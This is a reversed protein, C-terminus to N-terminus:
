NIYGICLEAGVGLFLGDIKFGKEIFNFRGARCDACGSMREDNVNFFSQRFAIKIRGADLMCEKFNEIVGKISEILVANHEKADIGPFIPNYKLYPIVSASDGFIREWLDELREKTGFAPFATKAEGDGFSDNFAM